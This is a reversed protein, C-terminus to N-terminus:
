TVAVDVVAEYSFIRSAAVLPSSALAALVMVIGYRLAKSRMQIRSGTGGGPASVLGDSRQVSGDQGACRFCSSASGVEGGAQGADVGAGNQPAFSGLDDGPVAGKQTRQELRLRRQADTDEGLGGLAADEVEARFAAFTLDM